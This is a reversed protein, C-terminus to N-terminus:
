IPPALVYTRRFLSSSGRPRYNTTATPVAPRACPTGDTSGDATWTGRGLVRQQLREGFFIPSLWVNYLLPSSMPEDFFLPHGVLDTTLAYIACQQRQRQSQQDQARHVMQVEMRQGLEGAWFESSCGVPESIGFFIPSLWVNYLLPSSMPEDFFLPHGV